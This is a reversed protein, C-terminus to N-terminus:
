DMSLDVELVENFHEAFFAKAKEFTLFIKSNIVANILKKRCFVIEKFMNSVKLERGFPAFNFLQFM